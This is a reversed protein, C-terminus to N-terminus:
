STMNCKLLSAVQDVSWQGNHEEPLRVALFQTNEPRAEFPIKCCKIIEIGLGKYVKSLDYGYRTSSVNTDENHAIYKKSVRMMEMLIKAANPPSHHLVVASSFVLDFINDKFPLERADAEQVTINDLGLDKAKKLQTPSFDIGMLKSTTKKRLLRLQKGYGCGIELINAASIKAIENTIFESRETRWRHKEQQQFYKEGGRETWYKQPDRYVLLREVRYDLRGVWNLVKQFLSM